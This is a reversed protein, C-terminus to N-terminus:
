ACRLLTLFPRVAPQEALPLEDGATAVPVGAAALARHLVPISRTASRVLVAMESWPVGDILRARRLQDAVWNAEAAATVHLRIEVKGSDQSERHAIRRHPGPLRAALRSVAQTIAPAMRRGRTLTVTAGDFPDADELLTPDAGRFSFIAQSPDGALVFEKA